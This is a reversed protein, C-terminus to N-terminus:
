TIGGGLDLMNQGSGLTFIKPQLTNISLFNM